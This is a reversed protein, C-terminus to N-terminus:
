FSYNVKEKLNRPTPNGVVKLIINGPIPENQLSIKETLNLM